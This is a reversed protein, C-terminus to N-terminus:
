SLISLLMSSSSCYFVLDAPSSGQGIQQLSYIQMTPVLFSVITKEHSCRKKSATNKLIESHKYFITINLFPVTQLSAAGLQCSFALELRKESVLIQNQLFQFKELILFILVIVDKKSVAGLVPTLSLHVGLVHFCCLQLTWDATSKHAEFALFLLVLCNGTISRNKCFKTRLASSNM